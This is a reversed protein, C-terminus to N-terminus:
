RGSTSKSLVLKNVSFERSSSLVLKQTQGM